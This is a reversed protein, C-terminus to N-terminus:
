QLVEKMKLRSFIARSIYFYSYYVLSSFFIIIEGTIARRAKATPLEIEVGGRKNGSSVDGEQAECFLDYYIGGNINLRLHSPV